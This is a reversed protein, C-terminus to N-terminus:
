SPTGVMRAGEHPICFYRCVGTVKFTRSYKEGAGHDLVSGYRPTM